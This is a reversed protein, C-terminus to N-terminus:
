RGVNDLNRRIEQLQLREDELYKLNEATGPHKMEELVDREAELLSVRSAAVASLHESSNGGFIAAASSLKSNNLARDLDTSKVKKKERVILKELKAIEKDLQKVREERVVILPLNIVPGSTEVAAPKAPEPQPAAEKTPAPKAATTTEKSPATVKAPAPESKAPAEPKDAALCSSAGLCAVLILRRYTPLM